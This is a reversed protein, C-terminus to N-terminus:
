TLYYTPTLRRSVVCPYVGVYVSGVQRTMEEERQQLQGRLSAADAELKAVQALVQQPKNTTNTQPPLPQLLRACM